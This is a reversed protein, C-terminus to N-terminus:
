VSSAASEVLDELIQPLRWLSISDRICAKRIADLFGSGRAWSGGGLGFHEVQKM